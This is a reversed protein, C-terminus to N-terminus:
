VKLYMKEVLKSSDIINFGKEVIKESILKKDNIKSDQKEFIADIWIDVDEVSLHKILELGMDISRPVGNSVLCPVGGAQAEIAVMGLGEFESPFCFVDFIKVINYIDDRLGLFYVNEQLDYKYALEKVEKSYGNTDNGVLLLRFNKNQENLEKAIEVLFKQNKNESFSGIHGIVLTDQSINYKSKMQEVVQIDPYLYKELDIANPIIKLDKDKNFLYAGAEKSCAWFDTAYKNIWYKQLRIVQKLAFSPKYSAYTHAHAIIRKIGSLHSALAIAGGQWDMHSQVIDFPGNQQLFNKLSFIYRLLGQDGQSKIHVIKGDLKRIEEDYYGQNTSHVLFVFELRERDINRYINMLMTEAGGCNMTGFVHLIRKKQM